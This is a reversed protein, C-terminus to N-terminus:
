DVNERLALAAARINPILTEDVRELPLSIPGLDAIEALQVAAHLVRVPSIEDRLDELPKFAGRISEATTLDKKQLAALMQMSKQPAVCVCGSTFSVLGFENM